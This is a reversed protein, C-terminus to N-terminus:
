YGHRIMSTFLKSLFLALAPSACKFHDSTLGSGDGKGCKIHSFADLVVDLSVDVDALQCPDCLGSSFDNCFASDSSANLLQKLILSFLEAISADSSEGDISVPSSNSGNAKKKMLHVERWIDRSRGQSLASDVKECTIRHQRRRLRRVEYKYQSKAKKKLQFM